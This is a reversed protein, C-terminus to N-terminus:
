LSNEASARGLQLRAGALWLQNEGGTPRFLGSWNLLVSIPPPVMGFRRRSCWGRSEGGRAPWWGNRLSARGIAVYPPPWSALCTSRAAAGRRRRSESGRSAVGANSRRGCGLVGAELDVDEWRLGLAKGQRLGLGVAVTILAELRHGAVAELLTQAQGPTLPSIERPRHRPPDTLAAVNRSILQLQGPLASSRMVPDVELEWRVAQNLATRLVERAGRATYASGSAEIRQLCAAVDQPTLKTLRFRGLGPLLHARVVHAYREHTRRRVHSRRVDLWRRLFAAVTEQEPVPPLGHEKRHLADRLKEQVERKTRGYLTKRRRKGDQWGLDAQAMWRGDNRKTISGEGRGRRVAM